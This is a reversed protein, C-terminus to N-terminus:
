EKIIPWEKLINNVSAILIDILSSSTNIDFSLCAGNGAPYILVCRWDVSGTYNVKGILRINEDINVLLCESNISKNINNLGDLFGKLELTRISTSFAGKFGPIVVKVITKLYNGDWYDLADPYLRNEVEISVYNFDQEGIFINM